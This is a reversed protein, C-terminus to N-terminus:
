HRIADIDISTEVACRAVRPFIADAAVAATDATEAAAKEATEATAKEAAAVDM